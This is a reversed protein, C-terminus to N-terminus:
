EMLLAAAGLLGASNELEAIVVPVHPGLKGAFIDRDVIEQLPKVLADGQACVGGGLIVAEPRFINAFNTIGFALHEIYSDVVSKAYPDSGKYDFATKGTVKDLSGIEWMKSDKHAEMARKTDRILATASAYAELCGKRGCTCAEGHAVIVAHGLEAGASKNGEVLKGNVVIGGGVGTGLTLLIADKMGKAVGFKVEGLAAVNADNAIKVKLGTQKEVEEGIAFDKWKLNNSYIVNGNQSDIMGPVGMGLGVMDDPILGAKEMLSKALNAINTAVRGAGKESETPTKDEVIINGLDDVIGGKIFTGGLDIGVYYKRVEAVILQMEGQLVVEGYGAPVFYSDGLCVKQGDIEGEGQVCIVCKFSGKDAFLKKEGNVKVSTTTFYRSLGLLQGQETQAQLPEYTYKNLNTVKLAKEVHLERENGNKDKRGYDYVRYTLNSNQQIECILCGKGIAHITGSPIFYCEGAKVEFFNLLETLTHEQIAKEYEEKTVDEKFGLYIGAGKDAEVIYWMETKGFSNENKLAYADSPHVQVSLDQKADILKALMPFFPFGECNKGLEEATATEQLTRGDALRTPGDKHFSLEWSEAVIEKDTQKGYKDRLLTGGWINDKCEPYLKVIQM